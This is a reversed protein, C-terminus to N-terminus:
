KRSRYPIKSKSVKIKPVNYVEKVLFLKVTEITTWNGPGLIVECIIDSLFTDDSYLKLEYHPVIAKNSVHFNIDKLHSNEAPDTMQAPYIERVFCFRTEREEIFGAPKFFPADDVYIKRVWNKIASSQKDRTCNTDEVINELEDLYQRIREQIIDDNESNYYQVEGYRFLIHKTSLERIKAEDFGFDKALFPM